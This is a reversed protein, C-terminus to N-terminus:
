GFILNINPHSDIFEDTNNEWSDVSNILRVEGGCGFNFNCEEKMM